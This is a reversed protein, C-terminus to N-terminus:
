LDIATATISKGKLTGTVSIPGGVKVDKRTGMTFKTMADYHVVYIKMHAGEFNFSHTTGMTANIKTVKGHWSKTVMTAHASVAAAPGANVVGFTGLSLVLLATPIILTTQFRKM